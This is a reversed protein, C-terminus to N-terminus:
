CFTITTLIGLPLNLFFVHRKIWMKHILTKGVWSKYYKKRFNNVPPIKSKKEETKSLFLVFILLDTIFLGFSRKFLDLCVLIRIWMTQGVGEVRIWM